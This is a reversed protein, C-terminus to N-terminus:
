FVSYVNNMIHTKSVFQFDYPQWEKENKLNILLHNTFLIYPFLVFSLSGFTSKSPEVETSVHPESPFRSTVM